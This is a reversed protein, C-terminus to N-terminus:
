NLAQRSQALKAKFAPDICAMLAGCFSQAEAIPDVYSHRLIAQALLGLAALVQANSADLGSPARALKRFVQDVLDGNRSTM